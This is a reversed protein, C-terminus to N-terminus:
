VLRMKKRQCVVSVTLAETTRRVIFVILAIAKITMTSKM